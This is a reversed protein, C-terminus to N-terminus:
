DKIARDLSVTQKGGRPFLLLANDRKARKFLPKEGVAIQVTNGLVATDTRVTTEEFFGRDGLFLKGLHAGQVRDSCLAAFRERLHRKRPNRLGLPQGANEDACRAGILYEVVDSHM